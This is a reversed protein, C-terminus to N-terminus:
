ATILISHDNRCACGPPYKPSSWQAIGGGGRQAVVCLLFAFIKKRKKRLGGDPTVFKLVESMAGEKQFIKMLHM